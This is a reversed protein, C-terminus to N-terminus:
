SARRKPNDNNDTLLRRFIGTFRRSQEVSWDSWPDKQIREALRSMKSWERSISGIAQDATPDSRHYM